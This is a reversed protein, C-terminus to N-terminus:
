MTAISSSAATQQCQLAPPTSCSGEPLLSAAAAFALSTSICSIWKDGGYRNEFVFAAIHRVARHRSCGGLETTHASGCQLSAAMAPFCAAQYLMLLQCICPVSPGSSHQTQGALYKGFYCHFTGDCSAYTSSGEESVSLDSSIVCSVERSKTRHASSKRWYSGLRDRCARWCATRVSIVHCCWLGTCSPTNKSRIVCPATRQGHRIDPQSLLLM